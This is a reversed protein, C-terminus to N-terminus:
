RDELHSPADKKNSTVGGPCGASEAESSQLGLRAQLSNLFLTVQRRVNNDQEDWVAKGDTTIVEAEMMVEITYRLDDLSNNAKLLNEVKKKLNYTRCARNISLGADHSESLAKEMFPYREWKSIKRCLAVTEKVLRRGQLDVPQFSASPKSSKGRSPM